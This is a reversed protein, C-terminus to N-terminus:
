PASNRPSPVNRVGRLRQFRLTWVAEIPMMAVPMTRTMMVRLMSRDTPEMTPTVPMYM